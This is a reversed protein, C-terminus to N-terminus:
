KKDLKRPNNAQILPNSMVMVAKGDAGNGVSLVAVNLEFAKARTAASLSKTVSAFVRSVFTLAFSDLAVLAAVVAALADAEATEAAFKLPSHDVSVPAKAIGADTDCLPTTHTNFFLRASTVAAVGPTDDLQNDAVNEVPLAIAM